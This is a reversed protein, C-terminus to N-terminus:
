QEEQNVEKSGRPRALRGQEFARNVLPLITRGLHVVVSIAKM